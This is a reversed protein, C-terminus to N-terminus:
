ELVFILKRRNLKGPEPHGQILGAPHEAIELSGSVPGNQFVNAQDRVRLPDGLRHLIDVAENGAGMRLQRLADDDHLGEVVAGCPNEAARGAGVLSATNTDPQEVVMALPIHRADLSVGYGFLLLLVVPMVFAIAISSPDRLIQLSEKRIMGSLRMRSATLAKM